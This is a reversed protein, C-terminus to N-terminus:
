KASIDPSIPNRGGLSASAAVNAVKSINALTRQSLNFIDGIKEAQNEKEVQELYALYYKGLVSTLPVEPIQM